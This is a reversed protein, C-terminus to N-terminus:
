LPLVPGDVCALRRGRRTAVWCAQCGGFGCPMLPTHFALVSDGSRLPALARVQRAMAEPEPWDIVIVDAWQAHEAAPPGLTLEVAPPLGALLEEPLPAPWAWAAAWHQALAWQMVPWLRPLTAGVLLLRAARAPWPIARGLPGVARLESGPALGPFVGAELWFELGAADVVPFLAPRPGLAAEPLDALYFPGPGSPLPGGAPACRVRRQGAFTAIETVQWGFVPM